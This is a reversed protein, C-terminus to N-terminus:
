KKDRKREDKGEDKKGHSNEYYEYRRIVENKYETHLFTYYGRWSGLDVDDKVVQNIYEWLKDHDTYRFKLTRFIDSRPEATPMSQNEYWPGDM